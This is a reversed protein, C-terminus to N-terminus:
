EKINESIITHKEERRRDNEQAAPTEGFSAMHLRPCRKELRALGDNSINTHNLELYYLKPLSLMKLGKDSIQTGTLNLVQISTLENIIPIAEDTISSYSLDLNKLQTLKKLHILDENKLDRMHKLRVSLIHKDKSRFDDRSANGGNAKIWEKTSIEDPHFSNIETFNTYGMLDLVGIGIILMPIILILFCVALLFRVILKYNKKVSFLTM